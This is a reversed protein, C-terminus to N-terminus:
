GGDNAGQHDRGAFSILCPVWSDLSCSHRMGSFGAASSGVVGGFYILFPLGELLIFRPCGPRLLPVLEGRGQRDPVNM